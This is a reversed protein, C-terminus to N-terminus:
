VKARFTKADFDARLGRRLFGGYLDEIDNEDKSEDPFADSLCLESPRRHKLNKVRDEM